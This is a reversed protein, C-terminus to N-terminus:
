TSVMAAAIEQFWLTPNYQIVGVWAFVLVHIQLTLSVQDPYCPRSTHGMICCRNFRQRQGSLMHLCALWNLQCKEYPNLYILFFCGKKWCVVSGCLPFFGTISIPIGELQDEHIREWGHSWVSLHPSFVAVLLVDKMELGLASGGDGGGGQQMCGVAAGATWSQIRVPLISHGMWLFAFFLNSIKLKRFPYDEHSWPFINSRVHESIDSLRAPGPSFWYGMLVEM